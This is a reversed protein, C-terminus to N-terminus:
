VVRVLYDSDASELKYLKNDLLFRISKVVQGNLNELEELNIFRPIPDNLLWVECKGGINFFNPIYIKNAM